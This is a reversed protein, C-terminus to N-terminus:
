EAAVYSSVVSADAALTDSLIDGRLIVRPGPHISTRGVKISRTLEVKYQGEPDITTNETNSM